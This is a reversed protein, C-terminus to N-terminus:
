QKIKKYDKRFKEAEKSDSLMIYVSRNSIAAESKSNYKGNKFEDSNYKHSGTGLGLTKIRKEDVGLAILERKVADARKQSLGFGTVKSQVGASSTTGVLLIDKNNANKIFRKLVFTRKDESGSIFEASDEIFGLEKESLAICGDFLISSVSPLDAEITNKDSNVKVFEVEANADTLIKGWIRELNQKSIEGLEDQNGDVMGIGYWIIEVNELNLDQGQMKLDKIISDIEDDTISHNDQIYEYYEENDAFSLVGTTCLGSDYVMIIKKDDNVHSFSTEVVKFAKYTDVEEDDALENKFDSLLIQAYSQMTDWRENSITKDIIANIEDIDNKDRISVMSETPTGDPVVGLLKNIRYNGNVLRNINEDTTPYSCSALNEHVGGIVALAVTNGNEFSVATESKKNLCCSCLVLGILFITVISLALKRMKM